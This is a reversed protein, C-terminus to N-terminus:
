KTMVWHPLRIQLYKKFNKLNYIIYKCIYSFVIYNFNEDSPKLNFSDNVVLIITVTIIYTIIM